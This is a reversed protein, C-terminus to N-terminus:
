FTDNSTDSHKAHNKLSIKRHLQVETIYHLNSLIYENFILCKSRPTINCYHNFPNSLVCYFLKSVNMASYSPINQLILNKVISITISCSNTKIASIQKTNTHQNKHHYTPMERSNSIENENNKM